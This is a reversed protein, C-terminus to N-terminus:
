SGSTSSVSSGADSKVEEPEVEPAGNPLFGVWWNPSDWQLDESPVVGHGLLYEMALLPRQHSEHWICGHSIFTFLQRPDTRGEISVKGRIPNHDLDMAVEQEFLAAEQNCRQVRVRYAALRARHSPTLTSYWDDEEVAGGKPTHKDWAHMKEHLEYESDALCWLDSFCLKQDMVFRQLYDSLTGSFM